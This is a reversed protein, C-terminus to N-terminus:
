GEDVSLLLKRLLEALRRREAESLGAVLAQEEAAHAAMAKDVLERGPGTLGILTSRRDSPHPSRAILGARELRDLAATMGGSTMMRARALESPALQFPSGARRLAVLIGYAGDPLGLEAFSRAYAAGFLSSLRMVRATVEKASVDLDPRESRWQAVAADVADARTKRNLTDQRM